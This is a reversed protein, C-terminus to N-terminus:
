TLCAVSCIAGFALFGGIRAPGAADFIWPGQIDEQRRRGVAADPCHAFVANRQVTLLIPRIIEDGPDASLDLHAEVHQIRAPNETKRHSLSGAQRNSCLLCSAQGVPVWVVNMQMASSRAMLPMM